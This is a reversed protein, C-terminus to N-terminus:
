FLGWFRRANWIAPILNTLHDGSTRLLVMESRFVPVCIEQSDPWRAAVKPAREGLRGRLGMGDRASDFFEQPALSVERSPGTVLGMGM